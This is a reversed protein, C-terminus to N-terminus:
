PYEIKGFPTWTPKGTGDGSTCIWGVYVDTAPHPGPPPAINFTIDGKLGHDTDPASAAHIRIPRPQNGPADGFQGLLLSPFGQLGRESPDGLQSHGYRLISNGTLYAAPQSSSESQIRWVRNLFEHIITWDDDETRTVFAWGLVARLDGFAGGVRLIFQQDPFERPLNYVEFKSVKNSTGTLRLAHPDHASDGFLNTYQPNPL